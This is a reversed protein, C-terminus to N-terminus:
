KEVKVVLERHTTVGNFVLSLDFDEKIKNRRWDQEYVREWIIPGLKEFLDWKVSTYDELIESKWNDVYTYKLLYHMLQVDSMGYKTIFEALRKPDSGKIIKAIQKSSFSREVTVYMDRIIVYNVRKKIFKILTKQYSGLEHLVSSCLLIVERGKIMNSTSSLFKELNELSSELDYILNMHNSTPSTMYPAGLKSMTLYRLNENQEVGILLTNQIEGLQIKNYLFSLLSGEGCGFDIFIKNNLNLDKKDFVNYFFLKEFQTAALGSTYVSLNKPNM